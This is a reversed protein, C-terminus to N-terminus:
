RDDSRPKFEIGMQYRLDVETGDLSEAMKVPTSRSMYHQGSYGVRCMQWTLGTPLRGKRPRADGEGQFGGM